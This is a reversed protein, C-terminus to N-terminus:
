RAYDVVRMERIVTVKVQGPYQVEGEIRRAIDKTLWFTQEDSVESSEVIIRIERGAQLAYAKSVGDFSKAITELQELRKIYNELMERRAGPRAASVADAAQVLMAELTRFEVDFHHAEIAHVVDPSEGCKKAIDVGLQLHTREVDRDIAKGVDHLLGARKCVEVDAGLECAMIGALYGVERSHNLVNQGYSTRYKLRGLLQVLEPDMNHIGLEFVVQEGEHLLHKEMDRKVQAVVEEIRAPHIRGDQILREISLKAIARRYPDFASLIVAEPTDDVILEVGTAQELARINRGERGIIRGKMDEAPLDVSSVTTAVVHEAACRQIAQTIIKRAEQDAKRRAEDEVNKVLVVAEKMAEAEVSKLLSQKAEEISM